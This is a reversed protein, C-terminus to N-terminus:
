REPHGGRVPVLFDIQILKPRLQQPQECWLADHDCKASRVRVEWSPWRFSERLSIISAITVAPLGTSTGSGFWDCKDAGTTNALNSGPDSYRGAMNRPEKLAMQRGRAIGFGNSSASCGGQRGRIGQWATCIGSRALATKLSQRGLTRPRTKKGPEKRRTM